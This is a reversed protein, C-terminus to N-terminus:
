YSISINLLTKCSLKPDKGYCGILYATPDGAQSSPIDQDLDRGKSPSGVNGIFIGTNAPSFASPVAHLSNTTTCYNPENQEPQM